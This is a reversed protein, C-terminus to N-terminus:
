MGGVIWLLGIILRNIGGMHHLRMHKIITHYTIKRLDIYIHFM